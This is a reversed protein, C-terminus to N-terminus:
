YVIFNRAYLLVRIFVLTHNIVLLPKIQTGIKYVETTLTVYFQGRADQTSLDLFVPGRPSIELLHLFGQNRNESLQM